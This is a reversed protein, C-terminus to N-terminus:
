ELAPLEVCWATVALEKSLVCSLERGRAYEERSSMAKNFLLEAIAESENFAQRFQSWKEQTPKKNLAIAQSWAACNTQVAQLKELVCPERKKAHECYLKETMQNLHKFKDLLLCIGSKDNHEWLECMHQARSRADIQVAVHEAHLLSQTAIILKLKGLVQQEPKDLAFLASSVNAVIVIIPILLRM